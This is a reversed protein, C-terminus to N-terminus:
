IPLGLWDFIGLMKLSIYIMLLSFIYRLQKEPLKLSTWVGLQALPVSFIIIILLQLLNVYGLSWPPLGSVELGNLVYILIGGLATAVIVASSTGVAQRMNFGLFIVLVPIMIVAGGIGVLGSMIGVFFGLLLFIYINETKTGFTEPEKFVLMRLAVMLLVLGFLIRLIDGPANTATYGGFIAGVFGSLGLYILAKLDVQEKRYHGYASSFATPIIVALSTGLAVRIALTPEFGLQLLLFYFVPVMIFGGGVGLLGTTFGVGVGTLVLIFIYLEYDMYINKNISPIIKDRPTHVSFFNIDWFSLYIGL